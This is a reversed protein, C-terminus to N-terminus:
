PNASSEHMLARIMGLLKIPDNSISGDIAVADDVKSKMDNSCYVGYILAYAKRMNDAFTAMEKSWIDAEQSKYASSPSFSKPWLGALRAARKDVDAITMDSVAFVQPPQQIVCLRLETLSTAVYSGGHYTQQISNTIKMVMSAFTTQVKGEKKLTFKYELPAPKKPLCEMPTAMATATGTAAMSLPEEVAVEQHGAVPMDVAQAGPEQNPNV